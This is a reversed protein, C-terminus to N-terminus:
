ASNKELKLNKINDIIKTETNLNFEIRPRKEIVEDNRNGELNEQILEVSLHSQLFLQVIKNLLLQKHVLVKQLFAAFEELRTQDSKIWLM